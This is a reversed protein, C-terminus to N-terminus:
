VGAIGCSYAVNIRFQMMINEAANQFWGFFLGVCQLFDNQNQGFEHYKSQILKIFSM